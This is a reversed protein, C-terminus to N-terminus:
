THNNLDVQAVPASKLNRGNFDVQAALTPKPAVMSTSKLNRSNFEVQATTASKLYAEKPYM